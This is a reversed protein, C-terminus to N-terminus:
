LIYWGYPIQVSKSLTHGFFSRKSVMNTDLVSLISGTPPTQDEHITTHGEIIIYLALVYDFYSLPTSTYTIILSPDTLFPHPIFLCVYPENPSQDFRILVNGFVVPVFYM